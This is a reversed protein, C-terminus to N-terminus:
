SDEPLNAQWDSRLEEAEFLEDQHGAGDWESVTWPGRKLGTSEYRAVNDALYRRFSM